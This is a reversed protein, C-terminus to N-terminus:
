RLQAEVLPDWREEAPHHVSHEGVELATTQLPCRCRPRRPLPHLLHLLPPPVTAKLAEVLPDWREEDPHHV